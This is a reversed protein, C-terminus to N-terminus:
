GDTVQSEESRDSGVLFGDAAARGVLVLDFLGSHLGRGIYSLLGQGPVQSRM